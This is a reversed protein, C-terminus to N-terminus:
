ASTTGKYSIFFHAWVARSLRFLLPALLLNISVVFMFCTLPSLGLLGYGGILTIVIIAVIFAYSVYSAGFYFGPEPQFNQQCHPCHAPM